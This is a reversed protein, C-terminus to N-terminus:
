THVKEVGIAAWDHRLRRQGLDIPCDDRRWFRRCSELWRRELTLQFVGGEGSVFYRGALLAVDRRGNAFHRGADANAHGWTQRVLLIEAFNRKAGRGSTPDIRRAFEFDDLLVALM